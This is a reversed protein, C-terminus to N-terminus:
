AAVREYEHLVGGLRDRRSVPGSCNPHPPPPGLPPHLGPARHPRARNYHEAYGRLVQQLHRADMILLRDLCERHVTGARREAVANARPARAPTRVVRGGQAAFVADFAPALKADRDRLLRTPRPGEGELDWCLTRAQQAVWAGTPHAPCGAWANWGDAYRAALRLM